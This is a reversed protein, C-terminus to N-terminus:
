KVHCEACKTPGKKKKKKKKHCGQCTKHAAKKLSSAKAVKGHCERCHKPTTNPAAKHHCTKCAMRKQHKRHEFTVALTRM